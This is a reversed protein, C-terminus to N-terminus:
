HALAAELSDAMLRLHAAAGSSGLGSELVEMAAVVVTQVAVDQDWGKNMMAALTQWTIHRVALFRNRDGTISAPMIQSLSTALEEAMERTVGQPLLLGRDDESM